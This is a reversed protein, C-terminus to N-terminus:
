QPIDPELLLHRYRSPVLEKDYYPNDLRITTRGQLDKAAPMHRYQGWIAEFQGSRSIKDFGERLAAYLGDADPHPSVWVFRYWPYHLLLHQDLELQPYNARFHPLFHSISEELGMPFADIAGTEMQRAFEGNRWAQLERTAIGAARYIKADLWNAGQGITLSRLDDLSRVSALTDRRSELVFCARWGLLGRELPVAIMRLKGKDVMELRTPTVPLLNIHIRGAVLEHLNREESTKPADVFDAPFGAARVAARLLIICHALSPETQVVFRVSSTAHVAPLCSVAALALLSRRMSSVPRMTPSLRLDSTSLMSM